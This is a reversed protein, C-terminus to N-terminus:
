QSANHILKQATKLADQHHEDGSMMMAIEQIREQQSLQKIKTQTRNNKDMKYVQLHARGRAAIAPLHTIVIVQMQLSMRDMIEAVKVATNGSVGSDIEDFIITPLIHKGTLISKIALMLRSLEGGSAVKQIVDPTQGKNASFLIQLKDLGQISMKELKTLRIDVRAEPMNLQALVQGIAKEMAPAHQIRNQHLAEALEQAEKQHQKVKEQWQDIDKELSDFQQLKAELEGMLRLLSDVGETHHKQELTHILDLRETVYELRTPNYEISSEISEIESAIDDLEIRCSELRGVLTEVGQHFSAIQQLKDTVEKLSNMLNNESRVLSEASFFLAQKIDEAHTLQRHEEELEESEGTQLSAASLEELLFQVYDRQAKAEKDLEQLQTLRQQSKVFAHFAQRYKEYLPKHGCFDDLVSLQFGSRNLTLTEHQSHINILREGFDKLVKLNVPTDNIFARSKGSPLLERRIIAQYDFDLDYHEFLPELQYDAINFFGEIVCKKQADFLANRDAREGLILAIAGLLITKGAGTEGTITTLGQSFDIELSEILVYNKVSLHTIM